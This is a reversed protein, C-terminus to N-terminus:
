VGRIDGDEAFAANLRNEVFRGADAAFYALTSPNLRASAKQMCAIAKTELYDVIKENYRGSLAQGAVSNEWGGVGNHTHTSSLYVFDIEPVREAVSRALREQLLPPTILLDFSVLAVRAAGNDNVIANVNLSDHVEEYRNRPKYGAMPAPIDPVINERSWGAKLAAEPERRDLELSDLLAMMSSFYDKEQLPKRDIPAIFIIAISGIALLFIAILRTIKRGM